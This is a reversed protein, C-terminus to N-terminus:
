ATHAIQFNLAILDLPAFRALRVYAVTKMWPTVNKYKDQVVKYLAAETSLLRSLCNNSYLWIGIYCPVKHGHLEFYVDWPAGALAPCPDDATLEYKSM